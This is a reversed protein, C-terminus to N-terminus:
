LDIAAYLEALSIITNLCPIAFSSEEGIHDRLLWGGENQKSYHEVHRADQHIILYERFSEITRYLEFKKGRDYDQTSPSLVEVILLPNTVVDQHDQFYELDGCIVFCDPYTYLRAPAVKVRLDSNFVHCSGPIARDLLSGIRVALRSHNPSGGSMAFMQGDHFESKFEAAREIELYEEETLRVSPLSAM